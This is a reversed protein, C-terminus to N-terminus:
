PNPLKWVIEEKTVARLIVNIAGLIAVEGLPTIVYGFEARIIISAIALLNVWILKSKWWNKM